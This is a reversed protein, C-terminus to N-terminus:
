TNDAEGENCLQPNQHDVYTFTAKALMRRNQYDITQNWIARHVPHFNEEFPTRNYHTMHAVACAFLQEILMDAEEITPAACGIRGSGNQTPLSQAAGTNEKATNTNM